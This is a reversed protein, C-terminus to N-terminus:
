RRVEQAPVARPTHAEPRQAPFASLIAEPYEDNTLEVGLADAVRTIYNRYAAAQVIALIEIDDFGADRLGEVDAQTMTWPALTLKEAFALMAQEQADLDAQRWDTAVLGAQEASTEGETRLFEGHEV